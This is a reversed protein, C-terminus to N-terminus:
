IFLNIKTGDLRPLHLDIDNIGIDSHTTGFGFQYGLELVSQQVDHNYGGNAYSISLISQNYETLSNLSESLEYNITELNQFRLDVSYYGHSGIIHGLDNIAKIDEFTLYINKHLELLDYTFYKGILLELLEIRKQFSMSERLSRTVFIEETSWLNNKWRSIKYSDITFKDVNNNELFNQIEKCLINNDISAILFQILHSDIFKESGIIGFPIFFIASIKQEALIQAIKLHDKLGDDFTLISGEILHRNKNSITLPDLVMYKINNLGNLFQKETLFSHKEYRKPFFKEDFPRIDHLM